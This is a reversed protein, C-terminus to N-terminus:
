FNECHSIFHDKQTLGLKNLRMTPAKRGDIVNGADDANIGNANSLNNANTFANM